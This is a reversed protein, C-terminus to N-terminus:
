FPNRRTQNAAAAGIYAHGNPSPHRDDAWLYSTSTAGTVLTDSTCQLVTPALTKDCVADLVNTMAGYSVPFKAMAQVLEDTLMIAVKEGTMADAVAEPGAEAARMVSRWRQATGMDERADRLAMKTQLRQVVKRTDAATLPRNLTWQQNQWAFGAGNFSASFELSEYSPLSDDPRQLGIGGAAQPDDAREGGRLRGAEGGVSWGTIIAALSQVDMQTYGGQVGLTHLELIERGLNENLGIERGRGSAARGVRTTAASTM